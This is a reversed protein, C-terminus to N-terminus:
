ARFAFDVYPDFTDPLKGHGLIVIRLDVSRIRDLRETESFPQWRSFIATFANDKHQKVDRANVGAYDLLRLAEALPVAAYTAEPVALSDEAPAAVPNAQGAAAPGSAPMQKVVEALEMALKHYSEALGRYYAARTEDGAGSRAKSERAHDRAMLAWRNALARLEAMSDSYSKPPQSM